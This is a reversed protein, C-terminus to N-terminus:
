ENMRASLGPCSNRYGSRCDTTPAHGNSGHGAEGARGFPMEIFDRLDVSWPFSRGDKDGHVGGPKAGLLGFLVEGLAFM